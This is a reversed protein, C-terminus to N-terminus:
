HGGGTGPLGHAEVDDDDTGDNQVHGGGTGPLGHGEVDQEETEEIRDLDESV